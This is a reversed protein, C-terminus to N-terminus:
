RVLVRNIKDTPCMCQKDTLVDLMTVCRTNVSADDDLSQASTQIEAHVHISVAKEQADANQSLKDDMKNVWIVSIYNSVLSWVSYLILNICVLGYVYFQGMSTDIIAFIIIAAIFVLIYICTISLLSIISYKFEKTILWYDTFHKSKIFCHFTIFLRVIWFPAIVRAFWTGVIVYNTKNYPFGFLILVILFMIAQLATTILYIIFLKSPNGFTKHYKVMFSINDDNHDDISESRQINAYHSLIRLAFITLTSEFSLHIGASAIYVISAKVSEPVCDTALAIGIPEFIAVHLLSSCIYAQLLIVGRKVFLLKHKNKHFVKVLYIWFFITVVDVGITIFRLIDTDRGCMNHDVM